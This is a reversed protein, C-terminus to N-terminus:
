LQKKFDGFLRTLTNRSIGLDAASHTDFNEKLSEPTKGTYIPRGDDMSQGTYEVNEFGGYDVDGYVVSAACLGVLLAIVAVVGHKVTKRM